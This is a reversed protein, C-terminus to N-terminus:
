PDDCSKFGRFGCLVQVVFPSNSSLRDHLVNLRNNEITILM